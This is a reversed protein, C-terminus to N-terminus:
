IPIHRHSATFKVDKPLSVETTVNLQGGCVTLLGGEATIGDIVTLEDRITQEISLSLTQASIFFTSQIWLIQASKFSIESHEYNFKLKLM